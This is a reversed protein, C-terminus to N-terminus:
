TDTATKVSFTLNSFFVQPSKGPLGTTLVNRKWHLPHPNSGQDSFQSGMHWCPGFFFSFFVHFSNHAWKDIPIFNFPTFLPLSFFLTGEMSRPVAKETDWLSASIFNCPPHLELWKERRLLKGLGWLHCQSTYTNTHTHTHTHTQLRPYFCLCHYSSPSFFKQSSLSATSHPLGSCSSNQPKVSCSPM